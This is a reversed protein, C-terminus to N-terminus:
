INKGTLEERLKDAKEEMALHALIKFEDSLKFSYKSDDFILVARKQELLKESTHKLDCYLDIAKSVEKGFIPIESKINKYYEHKEECSDSCFISKGQEKIQQLKKPGLPECEKGCHTCNPIILKKKHESM